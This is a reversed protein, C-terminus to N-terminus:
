YSYFSFILQLVNKKNHFKRQRAIFNNRKNHSFALFFFYMSFNVLEVNFSFKEHRTKDYKKM